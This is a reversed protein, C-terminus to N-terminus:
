WLTELGFLYVSPGVDELEEIVQVSLILHSSHTVVM